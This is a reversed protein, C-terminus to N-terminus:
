NVMVETRVDTGGGMDVDIGVVGMPERRDVNGGDNCFSNSSNKSEIIFGWFKDFNGHGSLVFNIRFNSIKSCLERSIECL